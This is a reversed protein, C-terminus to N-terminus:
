RQKNGNGGGGEIRKLIGAFTREMVESFHENARQSANHPTIPADVLWQKRKEEDLAAFAFGDVSEGSNPSVVRCFTLPPLGTRYGLLAYHQEPAGAWTLGLDTEPPLSRNMCELRRAEDHMRLATEHVRNHEETRVRKLVDGIRDAYVEIRTTRPEIRGDKHKIPGHVLHGEIICGNSSTTSVDLWLRHMNRVPDIRQGETQIRQVEM